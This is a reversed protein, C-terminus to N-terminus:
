CWGSIAAHRRAPSQRSNGCIRVCRNYMSPESLRINYRWWAKLLALVPSFATLQQGPDTIKIALASTSLTLAGPPQAMAAVAALWVLLLIVRRM